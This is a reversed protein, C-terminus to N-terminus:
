LFILTENKWITNPNQILYEAIVHGAQVAQYSKPLDKRILVYM